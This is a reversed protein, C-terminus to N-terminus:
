SGVERYTDMLEGIQRLVFALQVVDFSWESGGTVIKEVTATMWTPNISGTNIDCYKFPEIFDTDMQITWRLNGAKDHIRRLIIGRTTKM